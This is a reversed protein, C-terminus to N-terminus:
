FVNAHKHIRRIHPFDHTQIKKQPYTGILIEFHSWHHSRTGRKLCGQKQGIHDGQLCVPIEQINYSVKRSHTRIDLIQAIDAETTIIM